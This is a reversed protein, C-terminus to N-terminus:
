IHFRPRSGDRRVELALDAGSIRRMASAAIFQSAVALEVIQMRSLGSSGYRSAVLNPMKECVRLLEEDEHHPREKALERALEPLRHGFKDKLVKVPVGLQLLSGKLALEAILLIHQLAAESTRGTNSLSASLDGLHQMARHFYMHQESNQPLSDLGCSLDHLDAFAYASKSAIEPDNRCWARWESADAFGLGTHLDVIRPGSVVPMTILHVRDVSAALGQGAGPWFDSGPFLARYATSIEELGDSTHFPGISFSPGLIRVAAQFPRAHLPINQEAFERDLNLLDDNTFRAM